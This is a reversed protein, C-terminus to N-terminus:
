LASSNGSRGLEELLKKVKEVAYKVEEPQYVGEYFAEKHLTKM